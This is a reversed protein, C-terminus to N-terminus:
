WGAQAKAKELMKLDTVDAASFKQKIMDYKHMYDIYAQVGPVTLSVDFTMNAAGLDWDEGSMAGKLAENLAFDRALKPNDRLAKVGEVLASVFRQSADPNKDHFSKSMFIARPMNGLPTDYPRLMPKALKDGVARSPFPEPASMADVEKSKMATLLAPPANIYMVQVDGKGAETSHTLGAQEFAVLMVLEHLGRIVAFRKGKLDKVSQINQDPQGVWAIGGTSVSSVIVAPMGGAIASIAAEVGGVAVDVEGSKLAQAAELGRRFNTIRVDLNYKDALKAVYAVPVFPGIELNAIRITTKATQASATAVSIAVLLGVALTARIGKLM